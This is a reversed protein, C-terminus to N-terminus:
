ADPQSPCRLIARLERLIDKSSMECCSLNIWVSEPVRDSIGGVGERFVLVGPMQRPRAIKELTGKALLIEFPPRSGELFDESYRVDLVANLPISLRSRYLLSPPFYELSRDTIKLAERGVNRVVFCIHGVLSFLLLASLIVFPLPHIRLEIWLFLEAVLFVLIVPIPWYSGKYNVQFERTMRM